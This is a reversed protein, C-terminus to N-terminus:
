KRKPISILQLLGGLYKCEEKVQECDLCSAILKAVDKKLSSWCYLKNVVRLTKYYRSHCSYSKVHFEMLICKKLESNNSVYIKDKFRVLGYITRHYDM